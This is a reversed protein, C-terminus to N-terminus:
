KIYIYKILCIKRLFSLSIIPLYSTMIRGVSGPGICQDIQVLWEVLWEVLRLTM